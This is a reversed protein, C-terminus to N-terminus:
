PSAPWTIQVPVGSQQLEALHIAYWNLRAANPGAADAVLEDADAGTYSSATGATELTDADAQSPHIELYLEGGSWGVKVQQDVVTVPTGIGAQSYLWKIDDPYLRICGHSDRRGISYIKNTGHIAYGKWALYLAFDGMPNDPGPGVSAPLDPDEEHESKTPIWTPHTRKAAISTRGTPTEKGEGGIGIPFSRPQGTAPFYYIRLEPLNIVLGRRPANPLLHRTPLILTTGSGPLWPDIGPNAARLETYGLDHDAAVDLLTDAYQTVYTAPVGIMDQRMPDAAVSSTQLAIVAAAALGTQWKVSQRM